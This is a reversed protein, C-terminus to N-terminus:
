SDARLRWDVATRTRQSLTQKGQRDNNDFNLLLIDQYCLKLVPIGGCDKM